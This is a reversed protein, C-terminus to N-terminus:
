WMGCAGGLQPYKGLHRKIELVLLRGWDRSNVQGSWEEAKNEKERRKM